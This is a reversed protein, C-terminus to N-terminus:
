GCSIYLRWCVTHPMLTHVILMICACQIVGFTGTLGMLSSSCQAAICLSTVRVRSLLITCWPQVFVPFSLRSLYQFWLSLILWSSLRRKLDCLSIIRCDSLASVRFTKCRPWQAMSLICSLALSVTKQGPILLSMYQSQM